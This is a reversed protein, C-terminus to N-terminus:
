KDVAQLYVKSEHIQVAASKGRQGARNYAIQRFSQTTSQFDKGQELEWVRGDLWEDWPYTVRRGRAPDPLEDVTRAM